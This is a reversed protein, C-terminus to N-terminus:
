QNGAKNNKSARDRKYKQAIRVLHRRPHEPHEPFYEEDNRVKQEIGETNKLREMQRQKIMLRTRFVVQAVEAEKMKHHFCKGTRFITGAKYNDSNSPLEFVEGESDIESYDHPISSIAKKSKLPFSLPHSISDNLESNSIKSSSCSLRKQEEENNDSISKDEESILNSDKHSNDGELISWENKDEEIKLANDEEQKDNNTQILDEQGDGEAHNSHKSRADNVKSKNDIDDELNVSGEGEAQDEDDNNKLNRRRVV